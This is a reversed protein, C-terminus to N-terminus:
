RQAHAWQPHIWVPVDLRSLPPRGRIMDSAKEAIMITPANTNGSVISPMVSADVVRLGTMGHVRLSDDVVARRDSAPGMKCTGVPHYCTEIAQRVWDDIEADSKVAPGPFIEEGRYPDLARQGLVERLLRVGQRMDQRDQPDQMYNFRIAPPAQPDASRLRVTGLSRPRMLDLHVQFAHGAVSEVTGPKVALPM